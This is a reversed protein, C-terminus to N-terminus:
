AKAVVTKQGEIKIAREIDLTCKQGFTLIDNQDNAYRSRYLDCNEIHCAGSVLPEFITKITTAGNISLAGFSIGHYALNRSIVKYRRPQGIEIFYQRTLKWANEVAEGGGNTFFVRNM